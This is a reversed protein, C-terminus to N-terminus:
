PLEPTDEPAEERRLRELRLRLVGDGVLVFHAEPHAAAVRRAMAVFREPAKQPKFCAVQAVLPAHPPVGLRDRLERSGEPHRFAALDIGSRILSVRRRDFLGLMLGDELNRRSVAIFHDTWPAVLREAALFLWRTPASQHPGFGFGHISHVVVPVSELRAALRGVVGAKSSHTHVMQPRVERIVRRLAAVAAGDQLPRVERRLQRLPFLPVDELARAESLLEGQDACALAPAFRTRDLLRVTDLTNRQAGGLELMTIVHLVRMRSM